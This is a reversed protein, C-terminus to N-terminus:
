LANWKKLEQKATENKPNLKELIYKMTAVAKEQMRPDIVTAGGGTAKQRYFLGLAYYADQYDPKLKVTEELSKIGQDLQGAQGVIIGENYAIKADTPALERAKQIAQVALVFYKKDIQSLTYFIRVRNKWFLLNNPHHTVSDDNLAIAQQAFTAANAADNAQYLGVALVVNNYAYEDRFVPEAPRLEYAKKLNPFAQQYEGVRNLNFGLAYSRDARWFTILLFILYCAFLFFLVIGTWQLGSVTIIPNKKATMSVTKNKLTHELTFVFAPILFLFINIMVVSFGLFNSIIIAIYAGLLSITIISNRDLVNKREQYMKKGVGVFFWLSMLVYTGFGFAGTTALYNLYENHAKNYLYDWESTLNHEKPRHKYYAWAYTEVGSGFLPNAKWIDIAGKWVLLRIKGSDTIGAELSGSQAQETQKQTKGTEQAFVPKTVVRILNPFTYKQLQTIPLGFLFTVLLFTINAILFPKLWVRKNAKSLLVKLLVFAWFFMNAAWFGAFGARTSAFTLDVYFLVLLLWYMFILYLRNRTLPEDKTTLYTFYAIVPLLLVALYAALWAPQGLTSFIRITPRFAETWCAVDFSQRFLLCTPDYGFHSPLGWFAVVIGSVLTIFAIRFPIENPFSLIFLFLSALLGVILFFPLNTAITLFFGLLSTVVGAVFWLLHFRFQRQEVSNPQKQQNDQQSSPAILNTVFAYYLFAYTVLSLFGGNFRSYYGWLSTRLDLSFITAIGQSLLFLLIPIDLPTRQIRVRKEILMKSFWATAIIITLGWTVWMKTLEFLESNSNTFILPVFFFLAYFSYEIIKNCYRIINM